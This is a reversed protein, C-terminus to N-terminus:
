DGQRAAVAVLMQIEEGLRGDGVGALGCQLHGRELLEGPHQVLHVVFPAGM